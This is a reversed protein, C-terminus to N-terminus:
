MSLHTKIKQIMCNIDNDKKKKPYLTELKREKWGDKTMVEEGQLGVVGPSLSPLIPNLITPVLGGLAGSEM